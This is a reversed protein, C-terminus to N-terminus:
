VPPALQQLWDPVVVVSNLADRRTEGTRELRNLDRV